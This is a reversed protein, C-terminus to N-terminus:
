EIQLGVSKILTSWKTEERDIIAAYEEPTTSLPEAGEQILRRRVDDMALAARLEKSLREIIPRPTNAPAVIGNWASAEFGRVGQEALREVGIQCGGLALIQMWPHCPRQLLLEADIALMKPREGLVERM